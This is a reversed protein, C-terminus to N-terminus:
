ICLVATGHMVSCMNAYHGFEFRSLKHLECLQIKEDSKYLRQGVCLAWPIM